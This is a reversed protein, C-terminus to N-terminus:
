NNQSIHIQLATVDAVSLKGDKNMDVCDFLQKNAEDILSSGDTNKNGAIHMQLYTVDKVNVVGDQNADGKLYQKNQVLAYVSLHNTTFVYCGDTYEANMDEATGDDKLWMVKCDKVDSPIKITIAGDPQIAIGDKQLTIDYTAVSKEYTNELKSVNLDANSNVVGSVSISTAKDTLTREEALNIFGFGNNLAYEEAATNKYGYITLNECYMFACEGISTVSDPITISTLSTCNRFTYDGISTVSDPITIITLSKCNNFTYDGISTVSNPITISTLSTCNEFTSEGISAISDPITISTLNTCDRFARKEISAVSDPITISTLNTCDRFAGEGISTVSDPITISTLSTCSAFTYDGISTVGDPITISTLSTSGFAGEGIRTVSDPITVSALSTCYDFTYDGISTVSDPITVSTLSKCGYFASSEISTVSNPIAISTLSTCNEFTSSEISTVSDPIKISTLSTCNEFTSSEISTVSDPIKISTLSKCDKFASSDISTVSDPITISKLSTCDSFASTDISTVSDPIIVSTLSTCRAFTHQCIWEIGDPITISKLSECGSFTFEGIRTVSDPITISTLSTCDSFARSDIRTVSNPITISTLSTCDSFARSDIRTVSNPITISTLSTCNEFVRSGISTIGSCIKVCKIDETYSSWPRYYKIDGEGSFYLKGDSYLTWYVKDGCEGKDIVTSPLNYGVNVTQTATFGGDETTATVIVTGKGKQSAFGGDSPVSLISPDSSTYVVKKNTANQPYVDANILCIDETSNLTIESNKFSIGTVPINVESDGSQIADVLEDLGTSKYYNDASKELLELLKKRNNIQTDCFNNLEAANEINEKFFIQEVISHIPGGDVIGDIFTKTYDLGYVQYEIYAKYCQILIEANEVTGNSKYDNYSKDLASRFYTDVIYLVLLKFNNSATESSNFLVDLTMKEIDIAALIPAIPSDKVILDWATDLFNNWIKEMLQGSVYDISTEEMHAIIDDVAKTFYENDTVKSKALKLMEIRESKANLLVQYESVAEVLEVANSCGSSLTGLLEKSIKIDDINSIINEYEDKPIEKLQKLFDKYSPNEFKDIYKDALKDYISTALSMEQSNWVGSTDLQKQDYKLFGMLMVEYFYSPNRQFDSNFAANWFNSTWCLVGDDLMLETLTYYLPDQMSKLLNYYSDGDNNYGNAIINAQCLPVGTKEVGSSQVNTTTEAANVSTPILWMSSFTIIGALLISLIKKM